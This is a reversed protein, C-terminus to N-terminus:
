LPNKGGGAYLHARPLDKRLIIGRIREMVYFPCGIISEDETIPWHDPCNFSPNLAKQITNGGIDHATESEQWLSSSPLGNGTV